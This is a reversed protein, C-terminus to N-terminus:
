SWAYFQTKVCRMSNVTTQMATDKQNKEAAVKELMQEVSWEPAEAEGRAIPPTQNVSSHTGGLPLTSCEALNRIAVRFSSPVCIASYPLPLPVLPTPCPKSTQNPRRPLHCATCSISPVTPGYLTVDKYESGHADAGGGYDYHPCSAPSRDGTDARMDTSM